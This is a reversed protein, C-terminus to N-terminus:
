PSGFIAQYLDAGFSTQLPEGEVLKFTRQGDARREARLFIADPMGRGYFEHAFEYLHSVFFIKIGKELLASVIQGAIESGERENTAAFSENFLLLPTSTINDVIDSMRKLEEDLKGSKMAVDEERKYHTFLGDCLNTSFSEAPTFMGCQMMLQALGISRLFTSKGGQNAGTIMVLNKSDAHVYNGVVRQEISLSLCADYLGEFSHRREGAPSPVPFSVPEGKGALREYLNLCGIYFALEARLMHFFALIHEASQALANAALHIGRDRLESLARAGGEDRPHLYFTYAPTEQPFIRKLWPHEDDQLKPRIYDDILREIWTRKKHPLKRLTYNVGKNGKGLEASILVGDDFKLEMLHDQIIAFYEDTLEKKFTAFLITFGESAFSDAHEDAINRLKKLMGMMIQLVEIADRLIGGPYRTFIGFFTKKKGEIAEIALDYLARVIASNNLCDKLINQRYLITDLNTLSTLVAKKAVDFLFDDSAAMAGILTNLELDETLAQENWPLKRQLDFDQDRYMLFAKM